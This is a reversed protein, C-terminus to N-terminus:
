PESDTSETVERQDPRDPLDTSPPPRLFPPPPTTWAQFRPRARTPGRDTALVERASRRAADILDRGYEWSIPRWCLLWTIAERATWDELYLLRLLQPFPAPLADIRAMLDSLEALSAPDRDALSASALHEAAARLGADELRARRVRDRILNRAVTRPWGSALFAPWDAPPHRQLRLLVEAAIDEADPAAVGVSRWRRLLRAAHLVLPRWLAAWVAAWDAAWDAAWGPGACHPGFGAGFGPEPALGHGDPPGAPPEVRPAPVPDPIPAPILDPVPGQGPDSDFPPRM